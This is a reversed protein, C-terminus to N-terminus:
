SRAKLYIGDKNSEIGYKLLMAREVARMSNYTWCCNGIQLQRRKDSRRHRLVIVARYGMLFGLEDREEISQYVRIAWDNSYYTRKFPWM